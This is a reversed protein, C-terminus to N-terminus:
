IDLISSFIQEVQIAYIFPRTSSCLPETTPVSGECHSPGPKSFNLDRSPGTQTSSAREGRAHPPKRQANQNGGVTLFCAVFTSQNNM